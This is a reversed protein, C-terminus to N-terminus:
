RCQSLRQQVTLVWNQLSLRRLLRKLLGLERLNYRLRGRSANGRNDGRLCYSYPLWVVNACDRYWICHLRRLNLHYLWILTRLQYTSYHALSSVFQFAAKLTPKIAAQKSAQIKNHSVWYYRMAIWVHAWGNSSIAATATLLAQGQGKQRPYLSQSTPLICSSNIVFASWFTQGSKCALHAAKSLKTQMLTLEERMTLEEARPVLLMNQTSTTGHKTPYQLTAKNPPIRPLFEDMESASEILCSQLWRSVSLTTFKDWQEIPKQM